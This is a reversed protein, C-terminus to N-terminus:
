DTLSELAKILSDHLSAPLQMLGNNGFLLYNENPQYSNAVIQGDKIEFVGLIDESSTEARETDVVRNDIIYLWGAQQKLAATQLESDKPAEAAIVKQMFEKFVRNPIFNDISLIKGNIFGIIAEGKLGGIKEVQEPSIPSLARSRKEHPENEIDFIWMLALAGIETSQRSVIKPTHTTGNCLSSRNFYLM